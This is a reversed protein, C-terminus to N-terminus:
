NDNEYNRFLKGEALKEVRHARDHHHLEHRVDLGAHVDLVVEGADRPARAACHDGGAEDSGPVATSQLVTCYLVTCYLLVRCYLVTCYLVACYLATCCYM